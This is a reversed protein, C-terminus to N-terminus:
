HLHWGMKGLDLKVEEYTGQWEPTPRVTELDYVEDFSKGIPRKQLDDAYLPILQQLLSNAEARTMGAVAKGVESAIKAELGCAHGPNVGNASLSSELACVGSVVNATSMAANEYLTTKTGPGGATSNMSTILLKTNRALAQLALSKSWILGPASGCRYLPHNASGCLTTPMYNQNLGILGAVIGIALGEYGGYYGGYIVSLFAEMNADIRTIHAVKDLSMM